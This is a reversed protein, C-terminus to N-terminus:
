LKALIVFINKFLEIDIPFNNDKMGIASNIVIWYAHPQSRVENHVNADFKIQAFYIAKNYSKSTKKLEKLISDSEDRNSLNKLRFNNLVYILATKMLDHIRITNVKSITENLIIM